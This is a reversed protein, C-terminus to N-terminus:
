NGDATELSLTSNKIFSIAFDDDIAIAGNDLAKYRKCVTIPYCPFHPRNIFMYSHLGISYAFDHLEHRDDAFLFAKRPWRWHKSPTVIKPDTVFVAM